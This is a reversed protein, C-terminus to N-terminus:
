MGPRLLVVLCRLRFCDSSQLMPPRLIAGEQLCRCVDLFIARFTPLNMDFTSEVMGLLKIQRGFIDTQQMTAHVRSGWGAKM